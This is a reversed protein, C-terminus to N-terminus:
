WGSKPEENNAPEQNQNENQNPEENNAPEQPEGNQEPEQNQSEGALASTLNMMAMQINQSDAVTGGQAQVLNNLVEGINGTKCNSTDIGLQNGMEVFRQAITM